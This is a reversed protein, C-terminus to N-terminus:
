KEPITEFNQGLSTGIGGSYSPNYTYVVVGSDNISMTKCYSKAQALRLSYDEQRGQAVM